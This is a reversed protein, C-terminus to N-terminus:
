MGLIFEPWGWDGWEDCLSSKTQESMKRSGVWSLVVRANKSCGGITRWRIPSALCPRGLRVHSRAIYSSKRGWLRPRLVAHIRACWSRECHCDAQARLRSHESVPASSSSSSSSSSVIMLKVSLQYLLIVLQLCAAAVIHGAWAKHFATTSTNAYVVVRLLKCCRTTSM